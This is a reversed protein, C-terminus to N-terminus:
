QGIWMLGYGLAEGCPQKPMSPNEPYTGIVIWGEQALEDFAHQKTPWRRTSEEVDAFLRTLFHWDGKEHELWAYRSSSTDPINPGPSNDRNLACYYNM